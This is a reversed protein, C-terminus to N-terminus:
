QSKITKKQNLNYKKILKPSYYFWKQNHAPGYISIFKENIEILGNEYIFLSKSCYPTNYSTFINIVKNNKLAVTAYSTDYSDGM